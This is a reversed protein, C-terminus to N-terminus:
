LLLVIFFWGALAPPIETGELSRKGIRSFTPKSNAKWQSVGTTQANSTILAEFNINKFLLKSHALHSPLEKVFHVFFTCLFLPISVHNPQSRLLLKSHALHSPLEKVFHVFFTTYTFLLLYRTFVGFAQKRPTCFLYM